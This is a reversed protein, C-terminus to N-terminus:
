TRSLSVFHFHCPLFIPHKPNLCLFCLGAPPPAAGPCSSSSHLLRREVRPRCLRTWFVSAWVGERQLERCRGIRLGSISALSRVQLRTTGLPTRKQQVVVAVGCSSCHQALKLYVAFHPIRIHIMYEYIYEKWTHSYIWIYEVWICSFICIRKVIILLNMYIRTMYIHIHTRKM